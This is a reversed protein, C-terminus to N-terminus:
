LDALSTLKKGKGQEFEKRDQILEDSLQKTKWLRMLHRFFESTSAFGQKKVIKRIEKAMSEPVSINLVNRM